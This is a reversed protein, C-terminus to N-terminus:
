SAYASNGALLLTAPAKPLCSRLVGVSSSSDSVIAVFVLPSRPLLFFLLHVFLQFRRNVPARSGFDWTHRASCGQTRVANRQCSRLRARRYAFHMNLSKIDCRRM